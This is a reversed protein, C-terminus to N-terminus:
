CNCFGWLNDERKLFYCKEKTVEGKVEKEKEDLKEKFKSGGGTKRGKRWTNGSGLQYVM